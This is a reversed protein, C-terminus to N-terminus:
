ESHKVLDFMNAEELMKAIYEPSHSGDADMILKPGTIPKVINAAIPKNTTSAILGFLVLFYVKSFL